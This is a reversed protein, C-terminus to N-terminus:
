LSEMGDNDLEFYMISNIVITSLSSMSDDLWQEIKIDSRKM